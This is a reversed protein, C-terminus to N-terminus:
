GANKKESLMKEEARQKALNRGLAIFAIGAVILASPWHMVAIGALVLALGILLLWDQTKM